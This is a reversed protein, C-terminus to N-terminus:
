LFFSFSDWCLRGCVATSLGGRNGEASIAFSGVLIGGGSGAVIGGGSIQGGSGFLKCNGVPPMPPLCDFGSRSASMDLIGLGKIGVSLDCIGAGGYSPIAMGGTGFCLNGFSYLVSARLITLFDLEIRLVPRPPM